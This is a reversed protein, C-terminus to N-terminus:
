FSSSQMFNTASYEEPTLNMVDFPIGFKRQTRTESKSTMSNRESITKSRFDSSVIVLDLEKKNESGSNITSGALAIIDIVVGNEELAIELFACLEKIESSDM